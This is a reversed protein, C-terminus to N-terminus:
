SHVDGLRCMLQSFVESNPPQEEFATTVDVSCEELSAKHVFHANQNDWPYISAVFNGGDEVSDARCSSSDDGELEFGHLTSRAFSEPKTVPHGPACCGSLGSARRLNANNTFSDNRPQAEFSAAEM